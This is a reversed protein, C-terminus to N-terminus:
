PPTAPLRSSGTRRPHRILKSLMQVIRVLLARAAVCTTASALARVRLVDLIAACETASGRAIAFFRARDAQAVRGAGEGINLVISSSARELQDRLDACGRAPVLQPVLGVFELAVRYCDLRDIELWPGRARDALASRAPIPATRSDTMSVEEPPLSTSGGKVISPPEVATVSFRDIAVARAGAGASATGARGHHVLASARRASM